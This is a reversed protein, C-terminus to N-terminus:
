RRNCVFLHLHCVRLLRLLVRLVCTGCSPWAARAVASQARLRAQAQVILATATWERERAVQPQAKPRPCLKLCYARAALSFFFESTRAFSAIWRECILAAAFYRACFVTEISSFRPCARAASHPQVCVCFSLAAFRTAVRRRWLTQSDVLTQPSFGGLSRIRDREAHCKATPRVEAHHKCPVALLQDQALMCWRCYPKNLPGGQVLSHM